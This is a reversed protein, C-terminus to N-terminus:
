IPMEVHNGDVSDSPLSPLPDLASPLLSLRFARVLTRPVGGIDFVLTSSPPSGCSVSAFTGM